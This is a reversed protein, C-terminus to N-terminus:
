IRRGEAIGRAVTAEDGRFGLERALSVLERDFTFSGFDSILHQLTMYTYFELESFKEAFEKKFDYPKRKRHFTEYTMKDLKDGAKTYIIATAAPLSGDNAACMYYHKAKDYDPNKTAPDKYLLAVRLCAKGYGEDAARSLWYRAEGSKDSSYFHAPIPTVVPHTPPTFVQDSRYAVATDEAGLMGAHNGALASRVFFEGAKREVLKVGPTRYDALMAYQAGLVYAGEGEGLLDILWNEWFEPQVPWQREPYARILTPLTAMAFMDGHWALRLWSKYASQIYGEQYQEELVRKFAPTIVSTDEYFSTFDDDPRGIPPVPKFPLPPPPPITQRVQGTFSLRSLEEAQVVSSLLGFILLLPLFIGRKRM